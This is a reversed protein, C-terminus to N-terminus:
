LMTPSNESLRLEWPRAASVAQRKERPIDLRNDLSTGIAINIVSHDLKNDNLHRVLIGPALAREGFRQLAALHHVFVTRDSDSKARPVSFRLYGRSNPTAVLRQGSPAVVAGCDLVRYGTVLARITREALRSRATLVRDMQPLSLARVEDLKRRVCRKRFPSPGMASKVELQPLLFARVGLWQQSGGVEM